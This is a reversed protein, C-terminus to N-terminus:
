TLYQVRYQVPSLNNLKPKIREENYYRIYDHLVRESEDINKVSLFLFIGTAFPIPIIEQSALGMM